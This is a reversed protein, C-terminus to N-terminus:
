LIRRRGEPRQRDRRQRLPSRRHHLGDAGRRERSWQDLPFWESLEGLYGFCYIDSEFGLPQPANESPPPAPEEAKTVAQPKQKVISKGGGVAPPPTREPPPAQGYMVGAISALGAVLLVRPPLRM